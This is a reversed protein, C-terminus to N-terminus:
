TFVSTELTAQPRNPNIRRGGSALGNGAFYAQQKVLELNIWDRAYRVRVGPIICRNILEIPVPHFAPFLSQVHKRANALDDVPNEALEQDLNGVVERYNSREPLAEAVTGIERLQTNGRQCMAHSEGFQAPCGAGIWYFHDHRDDVEL